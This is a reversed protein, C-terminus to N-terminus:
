ATVVTSQRVSWRLLIWRRVNYALALWLAELGVKRLGRLQFQRLGFKAKIWLNPTEAIESRQRYIERVAETKMKEQFETVEPLKETRQVSRGSAQNGPCCQGRAPCAQCDALAARYRFKVELSREDKGEYSLTKGQPCRYTDSAPDYLFASGYYDLSVGRAKYFSEGKGAQDCQPGIFEVGCGAMEVINDRSVYGGDAVMQEPKRGLNEEVREVGPTLQNFDNGAQTVGVGVIVKHAADTTIQVNYSPAFGGDPQKMVRAEPDTTSVKDKSSGEARLQEFQALALELREARERQARERAKEVRRSTEEESVQDVAEIHERAAKLQEEIREKTRFGDSAASAKIKTGDQTVRELTILGDASLLGLIQVFLGKLSEEHGARFTSLTHGSVTETGTLWQYAPAYECLRAIARASSVGQSYGYIWLSILLQPSLASRGAVGELAQIKETYGSLDLKGVLEWIARAPHEEPILREVDVIRMLMQERDINKLRPKGKGFEAKRDTATGDDRGSNPLLAQESKM